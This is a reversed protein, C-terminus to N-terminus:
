KHVIRCDKPIGDDSLERYRLQVTKGIWDEPRRARQGDTLGSAVKFTVGLKTEKVVLAGIMGTYKNEGPTHGTVIGEGELWPKHKMLVNGREAIYFKDERRILGEGKLDLVAEYIDETWQVQEVLRVKGEGKNDKGAFPLLQFNEKLLRYSEAFKTQGISPCDIQRNIFVRQVENNLRFEVMGPYVIQSPKPSDFIVYDVKSWRLDGANEARVISMVEQFKERGLWLEGDLAFDPLKDLWQKPAWIPKWYRSWLGTAPWERLKPKKDINAFPVDKVPIGRTTPFWLARMGDLKESWFGSKDLNWKKALLCGERKM